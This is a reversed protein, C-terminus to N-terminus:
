DSTEHGNATAQGAGERESRKRDRSLFPRGLRSLHSDASATAAERDGVKRQLRRPPQEEEQQLKWEPTEAQGPGKDPMGTM